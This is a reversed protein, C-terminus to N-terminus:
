GDVWGELLMTELMRDENPASLADAIQQDGFLLGLDQLPEVVTSSGDRRCVFLEILGPRQLKRRLMAGAFVPSHTTVVLQTKGSMVMSTLLDAISEIRRPHVGNEPEEFAVLSAPRPNVAIACLALVRLTGESVVRSSFPIGDQVVSIDLTGRREDLDVDVASISPIVARLARTVAAYNKKYSHKLVFLYAAINEGLTGIDSTDSPPAPNRMSVRPDLYYARWGAFEARAREFDPYMEGSFRADSLQSHTDGLPEHRPRGPQTLRRVALRSPDVPEIRPSLSPEGRKTLRSLFEDTVSLSATPPHIGVAVRYLLRQTPQSDNGVHTIDAEMSFEAKSERLLGPLGTSPLTFAETPYGRIPEALAEKLTRETAVRALAQLADVVNSKGTANPGFLVAFKPLTLDLNRLSKFGTVKISNLV